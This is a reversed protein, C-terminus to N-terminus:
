DLRLEILDLLSDNFLRGSKIRGNLTVDGVGDASVSFTQSRQNREQGAARSTLNVGSVDIKGYNNFQNVHRRQHVVVNHVFGLSSAGL